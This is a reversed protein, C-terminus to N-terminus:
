VLRTRKVDPHLLLTCGTNMTYHTVASLGSTKICLMNQLLKIATIKEAEKSTTLHTKAIYIAHIVISRHHKQFPSKWYNASDGATIEAYLGELTDSLFLNWGTARNETNHILQFIWTKNITCMWVCDSSWVNWMEKRESPLVDAKRAHHGTKSCSPWIWSSNLGRVNSFCVCRQWWYKHTQNSLTADWLFEMFRHLQGESFLSMPIMIIIHCKYNAPSFCACTEGRCGGPLVWGTNNYNVEQVKCNQWSLQMATQMKWNSHFDGRSFFLSIYDNM